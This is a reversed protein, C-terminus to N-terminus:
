RRVPGLIEDLWGGVTNISVEPPAVHGGEYVFLRKPEPLLRFLPETQTKLPTDEDYRGQVLLKPPRIHAAFNIPNAHAMRRAQAPGLGAGLLVVARYRTEVAALILGIQAPDTSPM